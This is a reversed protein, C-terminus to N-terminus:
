GFPLTMSPSTLDYQHEPCCSIEKVSAHFDSIPSNCSPCVPKCDFWKEMCEVHGYHGCRVIKTTPRSNLEELCIVCVDDFQLQSLEVARVPCRYKRQAVACWSPLHQPNQARYTEGNPDGPLIKIPIESAGYLIGKEFIQARVVHEIRLVDDIVTSPYFAM